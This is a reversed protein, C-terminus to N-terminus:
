EAEVGAMIDAYLPGHKIAVIPSNTSLQIQRLSKRIVRLHILGSDSAGM